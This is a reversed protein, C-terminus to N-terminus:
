LKERGTDSIVIGFATIVRHILDYVESLVKDEHDLGECLVKIVVKGGESEQNNVWAKKTTALYFLNM